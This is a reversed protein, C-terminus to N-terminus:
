ANGNELESRCAELNGLHYAELFEWSKYIGARIKKRGYETRNSLGGFFRWWEGRDQFDNTPLLDPRIWGMTLFEFFRRSDGWFGYHRVYRDVRIWYHDFLRDSLIALDFDSDTHFMAYRHDPNLSFGLKGSGVMIIDNPHVGWREWRDAVVTRLNLFNERHLITSGSSLVYDYAVLRLDRTRLDQKFQNLLATDPANLAM